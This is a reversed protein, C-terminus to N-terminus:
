RIGSAVRNIDGREIGIDALMREDLRALQGRAVHKANWRRLSKFITDMTEDGCPINRNLRSIHDSRASRLRAFRVATM